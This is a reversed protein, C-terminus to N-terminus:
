EYIIEIDNEKCYDKWCLYCLHEREIPDYGTTAVICFYSCPCKHNDIQKDINIRRIKDM